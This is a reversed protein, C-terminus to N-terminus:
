DDARHLTIGKPFAEDNDALRAYLARLEDTSATLLVDNGTKEHKVSITGEELQQKLWDPDLQALGLTGNGFRTRLFSHTPLLHLNYFENKLATYGGVAEQPFIDMFYTTGLIGIHAQFIATDGREEITEVTEGSTLRKVVQQHYLLRYSKEGVQEFTWSDKSERDVWTGALDAKVSAHQDLILPHVSRLLCGALFMVALLLPYVLWPKM